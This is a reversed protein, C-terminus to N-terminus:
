KYFRKHLLAFDPLNTPAFAQKCHLYRTLWGIFADLEVLSLLSALM